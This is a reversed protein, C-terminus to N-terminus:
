VGVNEGGRDCRVRSPLGYQQVAGLFSNLVTSARNNSSARLYICLFGQIAM